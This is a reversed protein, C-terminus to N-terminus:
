TSDFRSLARCYHGSDSTFQMISFRTARAVLCLQKSEPSRDKTLSAGLEKGAVLPALDLESRTSVSQELGRDSM